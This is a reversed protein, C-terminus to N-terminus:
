KTRRQKVATLFDDLLVSSDLLTKDNPDNFEPHWQIATLYGPGTHRVAEIVGDVPSRAEVVLGQGLDKIAQHHVSNVKAKSINGYIKQLHSGNALEIEHFNKDYIEWNRHVLSGPIQTAIDQILTGGFAVNLLQLGRCVGLVPKRSQMFLSVLKVEYQDRIPDGSWEPKLPEEGYSKPSVDSGGQLVLGDLELALENLTIPSGTPVTPIMYMLVDRSAIWHSLSQELYLLTKGKFIARNPDAHFFCASIGIKLRM